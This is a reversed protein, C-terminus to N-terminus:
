ASRQPVVVAVVRRETPVCTVWICGSALMDGMGGAIATEVAEVAVYEGALM